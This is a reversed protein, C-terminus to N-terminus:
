QKFNRYTVIAIAILLTVIIFAIIACLGVTLVRASEIQRHVITVAVTTTSENNCPCESSEVALSEDLDFGLFFLLLLFEHAITMLTFKLQGPIQMIPGRHVIKGYVEIQLHYSSACAMNMPIMNFPICGNNISSNSQYAVCGFKDKLSISFATKGDHYCSSSSDFCIEMYSITHNIVIPLLELMETIPIVFNLSLM